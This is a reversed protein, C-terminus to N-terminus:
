MLSCTGDEEDKVESYTNLLNKVFEAVKTQILTDHMTLCYNMLNVLQFNKLQPQLSTVNEVFQGRLDSIEKNKCQTLYHWEDGIETSKCFSCKRESKDTNQYRMQEIPLSHCSLRLRTAHKRDARPIKDLYAEFQFNKKLQHYFRLKGDKKGVEKRWHEKYLDTLKDRILKIYTGGKECIGKIDIQDINCTKLLYIVPKIWCQKGEQYREMNDMHAGQILSSESTLMRIWYKVM